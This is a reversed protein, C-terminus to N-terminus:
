EYITQPNFSYDFEIKVSKDPTIQFGIEKRFDNNADYVYVIYNGLNLTTTYVLSKLEDRLIETKGGDITYFVMTVTPKPSPMREFTLTVRGTHECDDSCSVILMSVSVMTLLVFLLKKMIQQSLCFLLTMPIFVTKKM